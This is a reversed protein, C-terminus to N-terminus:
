YSASVFQGIARLHKNTIPGFQSPCQSGYVVLVNLVTIGMENHTVTQPLLHDVFVRFSRALSGRAHTGARRPTQIPPNALEPGGIRDLSDPVKVRVKVDRCSTCIGEVPVTGHSKTIELEPKKM